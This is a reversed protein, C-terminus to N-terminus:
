FERSRERSDKTSKLITGDKQLKYSTTVFEIPLSPHDSAAMVTNVTLTRNDLNSNLYVTNDGDKTLINFGNPYVIIDTSILNSYTRADMQARPINSSCISDESRIDKPLDKEKLFFRGVKHNLLDLANSYNNINRVKMENFASQFYICIEDFTKLTSTRSFERISDQVDPLAFLTPEILDVLGKTAKLFEIKNEYEYIYKESDARNM